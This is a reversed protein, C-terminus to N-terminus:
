VIWSMAEPEEIIVGDETENMAFRMIRSVLAYAPDEERPNHILFIRSPKLAHIFAKSKKETLQYAMVFAYIGCSGCSAAESIGAALDPELVADGGIFFFEDAAENHLLFSCHPVDLRKSGSHKTRYATIRFDGYRFRVTDGKDEEDSLGRSQLGPGWLATDPHRELYENVAAEDYHDEHLHTFLLAGSCAFLGEETKMQDRMEANMPHYGAAAADHIGDILIESSDSCFYLGANTTYFIRTKMKIGNCM